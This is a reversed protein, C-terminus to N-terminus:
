RVRCTASPVRRESDIEMKATCIYTRNPDAISLRATAKKGSPPHVFTVTHSGELVSRQLPTEASRFQGPISVEAYPDANFLVTAKVKKLAQLPPPAPTPVTQAKTVEPVPSPLAESIKSVSALPTQLDSKPWALSVAVLAAAALSGLGLVIKPKKRPRSARYNLTVVNKSQDIGSESRPTWKETEERLARAKSFGSFNLGELYSKFLDRNCAQHKRVVYSSLDDIFFKLSEYRQERDVSLLREFIKKLDDDAREPIRTKGERAMEYIRTDSPDDYTPGGFLCEYFVLGLSFIDSRHDLAEGRAQEPSMYRFKGKLQGAQTRDSQFASKAIGFDTLKSESQGSILINSPSVDRHIIALPRGTKRNTREHAHVLGNAIEAMVFAAVGLPMVQRTQRLHALIERLEAGEIYEMVLYPGEADFNFDLVEVVNPHKLSMLIHAEDGLCRQYVPHAIHDQTLLKVAVIKEFERGGTMKGIWVEAMGGTGIKKFLSYRAGANAGLAKLPPDSALTVKQPSLTVWPSSLHCDQLVGEKRFGQIQLGKM